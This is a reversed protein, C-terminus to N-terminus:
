AAHAGISSLVRELDQHERDCGAHAAKRWADLSVLLEGQTVDRRVHRWRMDRPNRWPRHM